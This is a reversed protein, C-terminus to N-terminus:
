DASGLQIQRPIEQAIVFNVPNQGDADAFFSPDVVQVVLIEPSVGVSVSTANEFTLQIELHTKEFESIDWYFNPSKSAEDPTGSKVFM